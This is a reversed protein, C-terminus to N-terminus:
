SVAGPAPVLPHATCPACSLWGGDMVPEAAWLGVEGGCPMGGEGTVLPSLELETSSLTEMQWGSFPTSSWLGKSDRPSVASLVVDECVVRRSPKGLLFGAVSPLTTIDPPGM